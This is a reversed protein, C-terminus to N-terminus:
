SDPRYVSHGGDIDITAGSIFGAQDSALFIVAEAIESAKGPRGAPFKAHL